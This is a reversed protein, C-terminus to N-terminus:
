AVKKKLNESLAKTKKNQFASCKAVFTKSWTMNILLTYKVLLHLNEKNNILFIVSLFLTFKRFYYFIFM